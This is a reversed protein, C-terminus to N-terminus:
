QKSILKGEVRVTASGFKFFVTSGVIQGYGHASYKAEHQMAM